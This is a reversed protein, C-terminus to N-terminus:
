GEVRVEVRAVAEILRWKKWISWIKNIIKLVRNMYM